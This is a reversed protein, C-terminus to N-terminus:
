NTDGNDVAAIVALITCPVPNVVRICVRATDQPGAALVVEKDGTYPAIPEGYGEDSRFRVEQLNDFDPGVFVERTDKVRLIASPIDRLKGQVTGTNVQYEFDMPVLDCVYPLGIQVKEAEQPLTISGSTVVLDRVVNGDALAVVTEGELHDLGSIVDAAVGSYTLGCDVFFADEINASPMRQRMREVYRVASGNITRKVILYVEDDGTTSRISAISEVDGDTEHRSWGWVDQERYYTFAALTGDSMVCWIISDPYQQYCWDVITRGEFIHPAMLTLDNGKYKDIELSYLMDRIRRGSAEVFVLTNGVVLPLLDAVGWRSQMALKGPTTPGVITDSSATLKWESGSTGILLDDMSVLWRIENVQKSNITFTYADDEKVPSSVNMNEFNGTQSGFLSQPKNNTRARVLRQQHYAGCGPYNGASAFPNTAKPPTDTYDPEPSSMVKFSTGNSSGIYGYVLNTADAEYVNYHDAGSVATWGLTDGRGGAVATPSLSIEGEPSEATVIYAYGSAAGSTRSFGTPTGITPTFSVTTLTWATHSSRTLKSEGYTPHWLMLTDASQEYKILALDAEVFTTTIEVPVGSNLVQAGDKYVRIYKDGFELMYTQVVSFTFPILRSKKAATKTSDIWETGGRNSAGGHPHPFFNLMTRCATPYKALDTRGYLSPSWEGGTFSYLMVNLSM